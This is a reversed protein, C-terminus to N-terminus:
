EFNGQKIFDDITITKIGLEVAKKLKSGASEGYILLDTNKGTSKQPTSGIKKILAELESRKYKESSGTVVINLGSFVNETNIESEIINIFERLRKLQDLNKEDSFFKFINKSVIKGIGNIKEFDEANANIIDDINNFKQTLLSAIYEGVGDIGLGYLLRSLNVNRKNEISEILNKVSKEKWGDIGELDEKKLKFIDSFEKIKGIGVLMEVTKEGLYEIDLAAKSVFHQIKRLNKAPCEPNICRLFIEEKKLLSNCVPCNVPEKIIGSFLDNQNQAVSTIKPIVDGAREVFIKDGIRVGLRKIEEFNHLTARSVTVGGINVPELEAVPTITGTRGV